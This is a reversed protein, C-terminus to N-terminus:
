GIPGLVRDTYDNGFRGDPDVRARVRQFDGFRPYRAALAEADLGHLKGWHPRGGAAGAIAEFAAFYERYPMGAFQHVAVYASDRGYATSLWIDDAAAVRVEVPFMVPDPLNPVADRLGALVEGVAERPVAYESEVFRVNRTTTFVRHAVDSYSRRSLVASSFRGLQPVLAPMTRGTRCLLGFAANELVEYELFRRVPSLPAPETGAPQRNNRKVLANRGYPFWYFEFHDNALAHSEFAALV